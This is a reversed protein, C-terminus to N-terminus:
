TRGHGLINLRAAQVQGSAPRLGGVIILAQREAEHRDAVPASLRLPQEGGSRRARSDHFQTLWVRGCGAARAGDSLAKDNRGTIDHGELGASPVKEHAVQLHWERKAVFDTDRQAEFTRASDDQRKPRM